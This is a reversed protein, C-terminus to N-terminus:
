YARCAHAHQGINAHVMLIWSSTILPLLKGPVRVKWSTVTPSVPSLLSNHISTSQLSVQEPRLRLAQVVPRWRTLPLADRAEELAQRIGDSADSAATGSPVCTDHSATRRRYLQHGM